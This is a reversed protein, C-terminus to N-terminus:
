SADRLWSTLFKSLKCPILLLYPLLMGILRSREDPLLYRGHPTRIPLLRNSDRIEKNDQLIGIGGMPAELDVHSWVRTLAKLHLAIM